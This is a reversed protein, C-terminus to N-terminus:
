DGNGNYYVDEDPFFMGLERARRVIYDYDIPSNLEYELQENKSELERLQEMLEEKEAELRNYRIIGSVFICAAVIVLVCLFFLGVMRLGVRKERTFTVTEGEGFPTDTQEEEYEDLPERKTPEERGKSQEKADKM